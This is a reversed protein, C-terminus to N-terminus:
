EIGTDTIDIQYNDNSEESDAEDTEAESQEKAEAATKARAKAAEEDQKIFAVTKAETEEFLFLSRALRLSAFLFLTLTLMSEAISRSVFVGDAVFKILTPISSYACTAVTILGFATYLHWMDRGLSIRTEYLVFVTASLYAAIDVVRNPANLPLPNEFYIYAAYVAFFLIACIQFAARTVNRRQTILCSAAFSVAALIALAIAILNTATIAVTSGSMPELLEVILDISMFALAVAVLASPIYTTADRYTAVYKKSRGSTFVYSASFIAAAAVTWNAVTIVVKESFYGTTPNHHLILAVSRLAIAILTLSLVTILYAAAKKRNKKM